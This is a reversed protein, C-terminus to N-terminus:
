PLAFSDRLQAGAGVSSVTDLHIQIHRVTNTQTNKKEPHLSEGLLPQFSSFRPCAKESPRLPCHHTQYTAALLPFAGMMNPRHAWANKSPFNYKLPRPGDMNKHPKNNNSRTKNQKTRHTEPHSCLSARPVTGTSFGFSM